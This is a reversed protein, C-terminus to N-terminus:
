SVTAILANARNLVEDNVEKVKVSDDDARLTVQFDINRFVRRTLNKRYTVPITLHFAPSCGCSCGAKQSWRAKTDAPLGLKEFIEPLFKRYLDSPRQTRYAFNELLSEGEIYVSLQPKAEYERWTYNLYSRGYKPWIRKPAQRKQTHCSVVQIDSM